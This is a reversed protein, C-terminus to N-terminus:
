GTDVERPSSSPDTGHTHVSRHLKYPRAPAGAGCQMNLRKNWVATYYQECQVSEQAACLNQVQTFTSIYAKLHHSWPSQGLNKNQNWEFALSITIYPHEPFLKPSNPNKEKKELYAKFHTLIKVAYIRRFWPRVSSLKLFFLIQSPVHKEQHESHFSDKWM